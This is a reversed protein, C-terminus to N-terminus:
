QANLHGSNFDACVPVVRKFVACRPVLTGADAGHSLGYLLFCKGM